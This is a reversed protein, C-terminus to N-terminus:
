KRALHRKVLGRHNKTLRKHEADLEEASFDAFVKGNTFLRYFEDNVAAIEVPSDHVAYHVIQYNNLLELDRRIAYLAELMAGAYIGSQIPKGTRNVIDGFPTIGFPSVPTTDESALEQYEIDGDLDTIPIRNGFYDILSIGVLQGSRM